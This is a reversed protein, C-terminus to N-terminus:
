SIRAAIVSAIVNSRAEEDPVVAKSEKSRPGRKEELKDLQYKPIYHVVEPMMKVAENLSKCSNLFTLLTNQVNSWRERIDKVNYYYEAFPKARVDEYAITVSNSHTRPPAPIHQNFHHYTHLIVEGEKGIVRFQVQVEHRKWDTPIVDKLHIYPGWYAEEAEQVTPSIDPQAGLANLEKQMMARICQQVENKLAYTIGVYAM